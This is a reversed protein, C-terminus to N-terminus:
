PYFLYMSRGQSAMGVDCIKRGTCLKDQTGVRSWFGFRFFLSPVVRGGWCAAAVVCFSAKAAQAAAEEAGVAAYSTATDAESPAPLPFLADPADLVAADVGEAEMAALVEARPKGVTVMDFFRIYLPHERARVLSDMAEKAEKAAESATQRLPPSSPAMAPKRRRDRPSRSSRESATRRERRPRFTGGASSGPDRDAWALAVQAAESAATSTVKEVASSPLPTNLVAPYKGEMLMALEVTERPVGAELMSFFKAYEPDKRPDRAAAAAAAVRKAAELAEATAAASVRGSSTGDGGGDAMSATAALAAAAAAARTEALEAATESARRERPSLPPALGSSDAEEQAASLIRPGAAEGQQNAIETAGAGDAGETPEGGDDGRGGGGGGGTVVKAVDGIWGFVGWLPQRHQRDDRLKGSGPESAQASLAGGPSPMSPTM